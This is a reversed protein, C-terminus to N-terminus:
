YVYTFGNSVSGVRIAIIRLAFWQAQTYDLTSDSPDDQCRVSITGPQAFNHVLELAITGDEIPEDPGFSAVDEDDGAKLVCAVDNFDEENLVDFDVRVKAFIAYAGAPVKTEGIPALDNPVDGGGTNDHAGFAATDTGCEWHTGGAFSGDPQLNPNWKPVSLAQFNGQGLGYGYADQDACDQPLRYKEEVSFEKDSSLDLGTGASYASCSWGTGNWAPIQGNTCSQPLQYSGGLSLTASGNTSGGSLGAGAVVATIDGGSLHILTESAKCPVLPSTGQAISYVTGNSTGLTRLCGTYQAVGSPQHGASALTPLLAGLALAPLLLGLLYRRRRM